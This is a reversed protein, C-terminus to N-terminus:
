RWRVMHQGRPDYLDLLSDMGGGLGSVGDGHLRRGQGSFKRPGDRNVFRDHGDHSLVVVRGGFGPEPHRLKAATSRLAAGVKSGVM